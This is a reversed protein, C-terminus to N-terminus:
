KDGKMHRHIDTKLQSGENIRTHSTTDPEGSQGGEDTERDPQRHGASRIDTKLQRGEHAERNPQHHGARQIDTKLQGGENAEWDPQRARSQPHREETTKEGFLENNRKGIRKFIYWASDVHHHGATGIDGILKDGMHCNM